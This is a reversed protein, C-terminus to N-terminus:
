SEYEVGRQYVYTKVFGTFRYEGSINKYYIM